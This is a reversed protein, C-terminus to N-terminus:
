YLKYFYDSPNGYDIPLSGYDLSFRGPQSNRFILLDLISRKSKSGGNAKYRSESDRSRKGLVVYVCCECRQFPDTVGACYSGPCSCDKDAKVSLVLVTLATYLLSMWLQRGMCQM